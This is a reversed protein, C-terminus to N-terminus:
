KELFKLIQKMLSAREEGSIITEFPFGLVVSNYEGEYIVGASSNTEGYRFACVSGKGHPEIADPAEVQYISRSLDTNFRFSGSFYPKAYDTAYSDGTMAAHGTRPMFHLYEGAFRIATSDNYTLLDSGVYSGSMFLSTGSATIERIRNMFEPTYISFRMRSTDGFFSTSKQEGFILDVIKFDSFSRDQSCFYVGSVSCFSYGAEMVAKGHLYPYDFTNGATVTGAIDSYSAGWGPSDDDLWPNKRNFDHQDGITIFDHHYAVGRDKWWAIGAQSGNDFWAPGSVRDFGNVILVTSTSKENIGVSLIESDFSEGGDNVATVKFGYVTNLSDIEFEYFTKETLTGNDFGNEGTRMYVVYRDPQSGPESEDNAPKWSLRITKGSLPMIAFDTVPLPQVVYDRGETYALYKLIGKYVARSVDFRFEPDLGYKLDALNQHSLLELLMAPVDPKRAEYYPRDWLGRRTWEPNYIRRIDDVIQSQIIDSLDRSALRSTGDPFVGNDSATSYIALTGIVSDGPTVGADTHFALSLDLPIGLGKEQTSGDEPFPEAMLYNVWLSRSQYDDNYDNRYANPSYVLTDPM